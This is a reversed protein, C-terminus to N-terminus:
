VPVRTLWGHPDLTRGRHLDGLKRYLARATPGVDGDGITLDGDEFGLVGVPSVAAATGSGFVELLRGTRAGDQVEDVTIPRERVDVGDDKIIQILSDRTIGSLITGSLSPTAIEDKFRFFVNMTGVEEVLRHERADTWLVQDYGRSAAAMQGALSAAYNGGTKAEGIGGPAARVAEREVWIRSPAFGKSAYTGVPCTMIIVEYRKSPRVGLFPETAVMLPRIYLAGDPIAGVWRADEAVLRLIAQVFVEAPFEPMCMRKASRAFREAHARARFVRVQHDDGVYAKLGEFVSQAYHLVSAGLSLGASGYPVIRPHVWANGDYNMRFVHDSFVSGFAVPVKADPLPSPSPTREVEINSLM